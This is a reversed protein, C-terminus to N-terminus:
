KKKKNTLCWLRSGLVGLSSTNRLGFHEEAFFDPIYRIRWSFRSLWVFIHPLESNKESMASFIYLPICPPISEFYMRSIPFPKVKALKRMLYSQYDDVFAWFVQYQWIKCSKCCHLLWQLHCTAFQQCFLDWPASPHSFILYLSNNRKKIADKQGKKASKKMLITYDIHIKSQSLAKFPLM